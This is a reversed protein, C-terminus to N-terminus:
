LKRAALLRVDSCLGSYRAYAETPCGRRYLLYDELLVTEFGAGALIKKIEDWDIHDDPWVHLDGETMYRPNLLQRAKNAYTAFKFFRSFGPAEEPAGRRCEERYGAYDQGGAWYAPNLEHDIYLVGGRATVRAMERVMGLYDPIHHLVSYAATFSFAGDGFGALDRGNLAATRLRPDAGFKARVLELFKESVDAATVGLGLALLHATLNGSGCGLDLARREGPPTGILAAAAALRARLRAQEVPNFIEGHLAEYRRAVRDHAKINQKLGSFINM